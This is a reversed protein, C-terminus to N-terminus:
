HHIPHPFHLASSILSTFYIESRCGQTSLPIMRQGPKPIPQPSLLSETQDMNLKLHNSAMQIEFTDRVLLLVRLLPHGLLRPGRRLLFSHSFNPVSPHSPSLGLYSCMLQRRGLLHPCHNWLGSSPGSPLLKTCYMQYMQYTVIHCLVALSHSIHCLSGKWSILKKDGSSTDLCLSKAKWSM